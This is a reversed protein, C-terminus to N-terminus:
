FRNLPFCSILFKTTKPSSHLPPLSSVISPPDTLSSDPYVPFLLLRTSSNIWIDCSNKQCLGEHIQVFIDRM